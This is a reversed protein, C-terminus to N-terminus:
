RSGTDAWKLSNHSAPEPEHLPICISQWGHAHGLLCASRALRMPYASCRRGAKQAALHMASRQGALLGKCLM